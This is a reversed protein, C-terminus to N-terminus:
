ARLVASALDLLCLFLMIMFNMGGPKKLIDSRLGSATWYKMFKKKVRKMLYVIYDGKKNYKRCNEWIHEVDKYVDEANLYKIGNQLNSSITGFDM